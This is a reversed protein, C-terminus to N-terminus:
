LGPLLGQVHRFPRPQGRGGGSCSGPLGRSRPARGGHQRGVVPGALGPQLRFPGAPLGVDQVLREHGLPAQLRLRRHQLLGRGARGEAPPDAQVAALGLPLAAVAEFNNLLNAFAASVFDADFLEDGTWGDPGASSGAQRRLSARVDEETIPAWQQERLDPLHEQLAAKWGEEPPRSRQWVAQWRRKLMHLADVTSTSEVGNEKIMTDRQPHGRLWNFTDKDSSLLNDKWRAIRDTRQKEQLDNLRRQLDDAARTLAQLRALKGRYTYHDLLGFAADGDLKGLLNKVEQDRSRGHAELWQLRHIRGLTHALKRERCTRRWATSASVPSPSLELAGKRAPRRPPRAPAVRRRRGKGRPENLEGTFDAARADMSHLEAEPDTELEQLLADQAATLTEVVATQFQEWTDDVWAQADATGPEYPCTVECFHAHPGDSDDGLWMSTCLEVWTDAPAQAPRALNRSGRARFELVSGTRPPALSFTIAKHDSLKAHSFAMDHVVMGYSVAFDVCRPTYNKREDWRTPVFRGHEQVAAVDIWASPPALGDPVQNWDGAAIWSRVDEVEAVAAIDDLNQQANDPGPPSYVNFIVKDGATTAVIQGQKTFKRWVLRSSLSRAILSIAGGGYRGDSGQLSPAWYSRFGQKFASARFSDFDKDAM